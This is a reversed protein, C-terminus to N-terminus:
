EVVTEILSLMENLADTYGDLYHRRLTDEYDESSGLEQSAEALPNLEDLAENNKHVIRALITSFVGTAINVPNEDCEAEHAQQSTEYLEGCAGCASEERTVTWYDTSFGVGFSMWEYADLWYFVDEDLPHESMDQDAWNQPILAFTRPTQSESSNLFHVYAQRTQIVEADKVIINTM